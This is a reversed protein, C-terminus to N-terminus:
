RFVCVRGLAMCCQWVRTVRACTPNICGHKTHTHLIRTFNPFATGFKGVELQQLREFGDAGGSQDDDMSQSSAEPDVPSPSAGPLPSTDTPSPQTLSTRRALRSRSGPKHLQQKSQVGVDSSNASLLAPGSQFVVTEM